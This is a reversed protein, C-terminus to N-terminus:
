SAVSLNDDKGDGAQSKECKEQSVHTHYIKSRCEKAFQGFKRCKFFKVNLKYFKGRRRLDSQTWMPTRQKYNNSEVQESPQFVGGINKKEQIRKREYCDGAKHGYKGCHGCKGKFLWHM